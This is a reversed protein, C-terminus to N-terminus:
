KPLHVRGPSITRQLSPARGAAPPQNEKTGKIRPWIAQSPQLICWHSCWYWWLLQSYVSSIWPFVRDIESSSHHPFGEVKAWLWPHWTVGWHAATVFTGLGSCHPVVPLVRGLKLRRAWGWWTVIIPTALFFASFRGEPLKVYSNFIAM